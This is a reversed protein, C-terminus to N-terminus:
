IRYRRLCLIQKERLNAKTRKSPGSDEKKSKGKDEELDVVLSGQHTNELKEVMTSLITANKKVVKHCHEM